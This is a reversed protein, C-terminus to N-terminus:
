LNAAAPFHEPLKQQALAVVQAVRRRNVGLDSYGLRSASRLHIVQANTDVVLELDDIYRMSFTRCEFRAYDHGHIKEHTLLTTRPLEAQLLEVLRALVASGDGSYRLPPVAHNPDTSQSCVCNPKNPCDCFKGEPTIGLTPRPSAVQVAVIALLYFAVAGLVLLALQQWMKRRTSM